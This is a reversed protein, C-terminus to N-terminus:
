FVPGDLVWKGNEFALGIRMPKEAETGNLLYSIEVKVTFANGSVVSATSPIPEAIAGHNEYNVDVMLTGNEETYRPTINGTVITEDEEATEEGSRYYGEFLLVYLTGQLYSSSFVKDAAQKIEEVSAFAEGERVPFFEGPSATKPEAGEVPLLGEGYAARMVERATPLLEALVARAEEDTLGPIEPEKKCSVSVLVTLVTVLALLAATIKKKMMWDIRGKRFSGKM